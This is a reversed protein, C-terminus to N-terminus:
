YALADRYDKVEPQKLMEQMLYQSVQQRRQDAYAAADETGVPTREACSIIFAGWNTEVVGYKEGPNLAALAGAFEPGKKRRCDTLGGFEEPQLEVGPNEQAYQEFSKGAKIAEFAQRAMGLWVQKEKEQRLRWTAAQKVKEFEQVGAPKVEALEFVYFGNASRQPLDLV